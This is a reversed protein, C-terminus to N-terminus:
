RPRFDCAHEKHQRPITCGQGPSREFGGIVVTLACLGGFASALGPHEAKEAFPAGIGAPMYVLEGQTAVERAVSQSTPFDSLPLQGGAADLAVIHEFEDGRKLLVFGREAGSIKLASRVIHELAKESSFLKEWQYQFELISSIKALDSQASSDAPFVSPLSRLYTELDNPASGLVTAVSSDDALYLLEIRGQGLNIRDGSQLQQREIRSGNVYTGHAESLNLISYGAESKVLKAHQRSAFPHAFVIDSDTRRGILVEDRELTFKQETGQADVWRLHPM